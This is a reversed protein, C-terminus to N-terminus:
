FKYTCTRSQIYRNLLLICNHKNYYKCDMHVYPTLEMKDIGIESQSLEMKDIGIESQSLEMKDIGIESQSLEM